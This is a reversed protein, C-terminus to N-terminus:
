INKIIDQNFKNYLELIQTNELTQTDKELIKILKELISKKTKMEIEYVSSINSDETVYKYYVELNKIAGDYDKKALKKEILYNLRDYMVFQNKYKEDKIYLLLYKELTDEDKDVYANRIIEYKIEDSYKCYNYAEKYNEKSVLYDAYCRSTCVGWTIILVIIVLYDLINTKTSKIIKDDKNIIGIFMYFMTIIVLYEFDYDVM